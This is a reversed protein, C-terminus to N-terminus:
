SSTPATSCTYYTDSDPHAANKNKNLQLFSYLLLQFLIRAYDTKVKIYLKESDMLYQANAVVPHDTSEILGTLVQIFNEHVIGTSFKLLKLVETQKVSYM